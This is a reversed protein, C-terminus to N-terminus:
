FLASEAGPVLRKKIQCSVKSMKTNVKNGFNFMAVPKLDLM